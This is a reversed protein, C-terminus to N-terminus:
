PNCHTKLGADNMEWKLGLLSGRGRERSWMDPPMHAAGGKVCDCNTLLAPEWARTGPWDHAAESARVVPLALVAEAELENM